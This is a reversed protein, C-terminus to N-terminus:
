VFGAFLACNSTTMGVVRIPSQRCVLWGFLGFCLCPSFKGITKQVQRMIDGTWTGRKNGVAPHTDNQGFGIVPVLHSSCSFCNM